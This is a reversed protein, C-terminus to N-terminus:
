VMDYLMYWVISSPDRNAADSVVWRSVGFGVLSCTVEFKHFCGCRQEFGIYARYLGYILMIDAM